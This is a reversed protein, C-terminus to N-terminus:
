GNTNEGENVADNTVVETQETTTNENFSKQMQDIEVASRMILKCDILQNAIWFAQAAEKNFFNPEDVELPWGVLADALRVADKKNLKKILIKYAPYYNKFFTAAIEEPNLNANNNAIDKSTQEVDAINEIPTITSMKAGSM